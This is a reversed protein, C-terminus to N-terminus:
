FFTAGHQLLIYNVVGNITEFQSSMILKKSNRLTWLVVNGNVFHMDKAVNVNLTWM